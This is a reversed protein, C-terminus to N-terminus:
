YNLVLNNIFGTHQGIYGLPNSVYKIGNIVKNYHKHTHGHIAIKFPKTIINTLDSEYAQTLIDRDSPLTDSVPKHHTILIFKDKSNKINEIIRKIYAINKKYLRTMEKIDFKKLNDSKNIYYIYNYDNMRKEVEDYDNPNVNSWLTTGCFYYKKKNIVLSIMRNNLFHYNPIINELKKLSDNIHQMSHTKNIKKVGATYYEHNGPVHIVHQYKPCIYKLFGIFNIFDEANGCACIDGAMCLVDGSIKFLNKYKIGRFEIHIDSIFQIKIM